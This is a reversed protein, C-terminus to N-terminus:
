SSQSQSSSETVSPFASLQFGVAFPSSRSASSESQSQAVGIARRRGLLPLLLMLVGGIARRRALLM